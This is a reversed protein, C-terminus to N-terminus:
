SFWTFLVLELQTQTEDSKLVNKTFFFNSIIFKLHSFAFNSFSTEITDKSQLASM